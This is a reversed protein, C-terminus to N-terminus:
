GGSFRGARFPYPDRVPAQGTVMQSVLLGTAPALGIGAGEHGTAHFLGPVRPDPGIVPLHDPTFPRFGCYARIARAAALAPFLRAAGRALRALVDMRITTDFGVLERSAGILVTGAETAEVVTSTQVDAGDSAVNAVYADDYVKGRVTPPLPETVLIFGRRPRVPLPQGALDAVQGSWVGAANVVAGAAITDKQTRVARVAGSRDRDIATVPQGVRIRAGHARAARLAAATALAPQVQLDQPYHIAAVTAPTLEPELDHATAADVPRADVGAARQRAALGLLASPDGLAVVLGGKPAFEVPDPLDAAAREWLDRSLIALDLEPGPEKDSVLVNGEGAGTTGAAAAARELVTVSLGARALEWACFAGIIGAGIVVVDPRM